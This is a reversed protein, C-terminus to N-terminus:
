EVGSLCVYVRGPLIKHGSERTPLLAFCSKGVGCLELVYTGEGLPCLCLFLSGFLVNKRRGGEFIDSPLM